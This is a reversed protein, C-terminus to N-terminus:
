VNNLALPEASMTLVWTTSHSTRSPVPLLSPTRKLVSGYYQSSTRLLSLRLMVMSLQNGTQTPPHANPPLSSGDSALSCTICLPCCAPGILPSTWPRSSSPRLDSALANRVLLPTSWARETEHNQINSKGLDWKWSGPSRLLGEPM